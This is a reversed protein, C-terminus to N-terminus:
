VPNLTYTAQDTQTNLAVRVVRYTANINLPGHAIELPVTDGIVLSGILASHPYTTAEIIEPQTGVRLVEAAVTDLDGIRVTDPATDVKELTLGGFAGTDTAAGEPRDPGDGPGLIIVSNTAAEGDWSWQFTAVNVDLELPEGSKLSGKRPSYSTFTRTTATIAVDIDVVGTAVLEQLADWINRHEVFQYARPAVMIGTAPCDTGINLDSKGHTFEFNDQAYLVIGEIVDALEVPDAFGFALSEMATLTALDWWASGNPAYLRVDLWDGAAVNPFGIELNVWQDQPFDDDLPPSAIQVDLLENAANYHAGFLGRLGLAPAVYSASDVWVWANLTLFDGTPFSAAAHTYIQKAWNEGDSAGGVLKLAQTGDVIHTASATQTVSNYTWGTPPSGTEFSGNTLLNTRDAKGMFRRKFYWALGACSWQAKHLDIQTRVIPGWWLVTGDRKIQIERGFQPLDADADTTPLSVEVGGWGNLEWTITGIEANVLEGFSTGTMDVVYAQYVGAM